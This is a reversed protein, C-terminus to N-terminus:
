PLGRQKRMQLIIDSRSEEPEATTTAKSHATPINVIGGKKELKEARTTTTPEAPTPSPTGKFKERVANGASILAEAYPKGEAEFQRLKLTTLALLDPDAIVDKYDTQFKELASENSLQQKIVPTVQAIISQADPIPTAAPRGQMLEDFLSDAKEQDGEFLAQHYEKRKATFDPKAQPTIPAALAAAKATADAIIRTAEQNADYLRKSAAAQKQYSAVLDDDSVELEEGDVKVTRMQKTVQDEVAPEVVEPEPEVVEATDGHLEADAKLDDSRRQNVAEAMAELAIDRATPKYANPEDTAPVDTKDTM